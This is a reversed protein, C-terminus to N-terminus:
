YTVRMWVSGGISEVGAIAPSPLFRRLLDPETRHLFYSGLLVELKTSNALLAALVYQENWYCLVDESWYRPYEFPLCIDHVHVVVGKPLRPLIRLFVHNVDSGTKSIHSGDIFLVDNESLSLFVDDPAEQVPAALVQVQVNAGLGPLWSPAHPDICLISGAGNDGLAKAALKTSNGAGVEVVRRPRLRRLLTYYLAADSHSFQDNNWHFVAKDAPADWPLAGLVEAFAPTEALFARQRALDWEGCADFRAEWQSEPVLEPSWVPTYFFEPILQLRSRRSRRHLERLAPSWGPHAPDFGLRAVLADFLEDVSPEGPAGAGRSPGRRRRFVSV